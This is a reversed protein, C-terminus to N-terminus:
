KSPSFLNKIYDIVTRNARDVKTWDYSNSLYKTQPKFTGNSLGAVREIKSKRVGIMKAYTNIRDFISGM